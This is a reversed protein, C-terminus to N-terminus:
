AGPSLGDSLARRYCRMAPLLGALLGAMLIGAFLPAVTGVAFAGSLSLGYHQALTNDLALVTSTALLIGVVIGGLTLLLAEGIILLLIHRPRAGVARLV